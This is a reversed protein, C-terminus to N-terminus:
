ESRSPTSLHRETVRSPASRVSIADSQSGCRQAIAQCRASDGGGGDNRARGSTLENRVREFSQDVSHRKLM